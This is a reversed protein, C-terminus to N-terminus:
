KLLKLFPLWSPFTLNQILDPTSELVPLWFLGNQFGFFIFWVLDYLGLFLNSSVGGAAPCRSSTGM